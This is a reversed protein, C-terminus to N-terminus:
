AADIYQGTSPKTTKPQAHHRLPEPILIHQVEPPLGIVPHEDIVLLKRDPNQNQRFSAVSRAEQVEPREAPKASATPLTIAIPMDYHNVRRFSSLAAERLADSSALLGVRGFQSLKRIVHPADPRWTVEIQQKDPDIAEVDLLAEVDVLVDTNEPSSDEIQPLLFALLESSNEQEGPVKQGNEWYIEQGSVTLERGKIPELSGPQMIGDFTSGDIRQLRGVFCLPNGEEPSSDDPIEDLMGYLVGSTKRFEWRGLTDMGTPDLQGAFSHMPYLALASHSTDPTGFDIRDLEYTDHPPQGHRSYAMSIIDAPDPEGLSHRQGSIQITIMPLNLQKGLKDTDMSNAISSVREFARDTAISAETGAHALHQVSELLDTIPMEMSVPHPIEDLVTELNPQGPSSPPNETM